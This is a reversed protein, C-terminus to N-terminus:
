ADSGRGRLRAAKKADATLVRRVCERVFASRSMGATQAATDLDRAESVTMRLTAFETKPDNTTPWSM